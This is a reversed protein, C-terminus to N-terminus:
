MDELACPLSASCLTMNSGQGERYQTDPPEEMQMENLFKGFVSAAIGLKIRHSDITHM